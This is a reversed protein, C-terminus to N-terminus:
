FCLFPNEDSGNDCDPEFDCVWEGPICFGDGCPFDQPGCPFGGGSSEGFGGSEGPGGGDDMGSEGFGSSGGSVPGSTGPGGSDGTEGPGGSTFTGFTGDTNKGNDPPWGGTTDNGESEVDDDSPEVDPGQPGTNSAVPWPPPQDSDVGQACGAVLLLTITLGRGM